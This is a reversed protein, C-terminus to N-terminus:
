ESNDTECSHTLRYIYLEVDTYVDLNPVSTEKINYSDLVTVHSDFSPWVYIM